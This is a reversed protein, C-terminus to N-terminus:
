SKGVAGDVGSFSMEMKPPSNKLLESLRNRAASKTRLEDLTGLRINCLLSSTYLARTSSRAGGLQRVHEAYLFYPQCKTLGFGSEPLNANTVKDKAKLALLKSVQTPM